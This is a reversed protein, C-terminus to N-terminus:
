KRSRHFGDQLLQPSTLLCTKKLSAAKYGNFHYNTYTAVTGIGHSGSVFSEWSENVGNKTKRNQAM